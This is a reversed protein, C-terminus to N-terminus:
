FDSRNYPPDRDYVRSYIGAYILPEDHRVILSDPSAELDQPKVLVFNNGLGSAYQYKSEFDGSMRLEQFVISSQNLYKGADSDYALVFCAQEYTQYHSELYGIRMRNKAGMLMNTVTKGKIKYDLTCCFGGDCVQEGKAEPEVIPKTVVEGLDRYFAKYHGGKVEPLSNHEIVRASPDCKANSKPDIPANAIVQISHRSNPHTSPAHTYASHRKGPPFIGSGTSGISPLKINSTIINVGLGKAWSEDIQHSMLFPYEDFWWTSLAMTTVNHKEALSVIPDHFLRDFCIYMGIRAGFDTDFYVLEQEDPVENQFEGYLHYKHYRAVLNGQRDFAVQTNFLKFGDGRCGSDSSTCPKVDSVQAVLYIGNEKAICSLSGLIVQDCVRTCPNVLEKQPDPIDDSFGRIIQRLTLNKDTSSQSTFLGLEPFVIIDAGDAAAEAAAAGYARLNKHVNKLPDTADVLEDSGITVHDIVSARFCGTNRDSSASAVFLLFLLFPQTLTM